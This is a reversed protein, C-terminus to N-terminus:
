YKIIETSVSTGNVRAELWAVVPSFYSAFVKNEKLLNRLLENQTELEEQIIPYKPEFVNKLTLILRNYIESKQKRRRLKGQLNALPRTPRKKFVGLEFLTIIQQLEASILLMPNMKTRTGDLISAYWDSAIKYNELVLYVNACYYRLMLLRSEEIRNEFQALRDFLNNESIFRAAENFEHKSLMDVIRFYVASRYFQIENASSLNKQEFRGVRSYEGLRICLSVYNDIFSNFLSIEESAILKGEGEAIEFIKELCELALKLNATKDQAPKQLKHQKEYYHFLSNYYWFKARLPLNKLLETRDQQLLGAIKEEVNTPVPSDEKIALFIENSLTNLDFFRRLSHMINQEEEAIERLRKGQEKVTRSSIYLRREWISLELLYTTKDLVRALEKAERIERECDDFLGKYFLFNINQLMNLMQNTLPSVAQKVRVSELIKSYLYRAMSTLKPTKKFNGAKELYEMLVEEDDGTHVFNNVADFLALYKPGGTYGWFQTYKKFDRKQAQTLVRVLHYLSAISAPAPTRDTNQKRKSM